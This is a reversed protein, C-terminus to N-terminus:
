LSPCPKRVQRGPGGKKGDKGRRARADRLLMYSRTSTTLSNTCCTIRGLRLSHAV